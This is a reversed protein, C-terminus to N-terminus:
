LNLKDTEAIKKHTEKWDSTSPEKAAFATVSGAYGFAPVLGLIFVLLLCILKKKRNTAL